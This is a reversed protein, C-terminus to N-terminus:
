KTPVRLAKMVCADCVLEEKMTEIQSILKKSADGKGCRECKNGNDLYPHCKACDLGHLYGHECQRESGADMTSEYCVREADKLEAEAERYIEDRFSITYTGFAVLLRHLAPYARKKM